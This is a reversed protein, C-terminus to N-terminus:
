GIQVKRRTRRELACLSEGKGGRKKVKGKTTEKLEEKEEKEGEKWREVWGRFGGRSSGYKRNQNFVCQRRRKQNLTRLSLTKISQNISQNINFIVRLLRVHLWHFYVTCHYFRVYSFTAWVRNPGLTPNRLQDRNKATLRCTVHTMICLTVTVYNWHWSAKAAM